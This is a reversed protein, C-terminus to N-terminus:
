LIKKKAKEDLADLFEKADNFFEIHINMRTNINIRISIQYTASFYLM